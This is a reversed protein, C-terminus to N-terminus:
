DKYVNPLSEETSEGNALKCLTSWHERIVRFRCSREKIHYHYIEDEKISGDWFSGNERILKWIIEEEHNLLLPYNLAMKVFRDSEEVDWAREIADIANEEWPEIGEDLDGYHFKIPVKQVAEEVAWEIFSSLSRRQKRAALEAAFRLKPELRFGITETKRTKKKSRKKEETM